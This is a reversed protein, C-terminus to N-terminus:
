AVVKRARGIVESVRGRVERVAEVVRRAGAVVHSATAGVGSRNRRIQQGKRQRDYVAGRGGRRRTLREEPKVNERSPVRTAVL